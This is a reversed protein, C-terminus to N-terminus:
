NSRGHVAGCCTTGGAWGWSGAWGGGGPEGPERHTLFSRDKAAQLIDRVRGIDKAQEKTTDLFHNIKTDDILDDVKAYTQPEREVSWMLGRLQRSLVPLAAGMAPLLKAAGSAILGGAAQRLM